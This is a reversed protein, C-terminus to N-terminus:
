ALADGVWENRKICINNCLGGASSRCERKGPRGRFSLLIVVVGMRADSVREIHITMHWWM